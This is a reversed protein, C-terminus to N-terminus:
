FSPQSLQLFCFHRVEYKSVYASWRPVVLLDSCETCPMGYPSYNDIGTTVMVVERPHIRLSHHVPPPRQHVTLLPRSPLARRRQHRLHYSPKRSLQTHRCHSQPRSPSGGYSIASIAGGESGM